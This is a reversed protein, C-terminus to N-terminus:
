HANDKKSLNVPWTHPRFRKGEYEEKIERKIKRFQISFWQNGAKNIDQALHQLGHVVDASSPTVGPAIIALRTMRQDLADVPSIKSKECIFCGKGIEDIVRSHIADFGIDLQGNNINKGELMCALSRAINFNRCEALGSLGLKGTKENETASIVSGNNKYFPYSVKRDLFGDLAKIKKPDHVENEARYLKTGTELEYRDVAQLYLQCSYTDKCSEKKQKELKPRADDQESGQQDMAFNNAGTVLLLGFLIKQLKM